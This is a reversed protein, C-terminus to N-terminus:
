SHIWSTTGDAFSERKWIPVTRKLEDMLWPIAEMVAPRHPSAAAIAVSPEGVPVEGVRHQIVLRRLDWREIAREALMQLEAVAMSPYAQYSLSQTVQEGTHRRTCGAFVMRAGCDDDALRSWLSALDLPNSLLEVEAVLSRSSTAMADPELPAASDHTSNARDSNM